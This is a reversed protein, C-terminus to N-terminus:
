HGIKGAARAAQQKSSYRDWWINFEDLLMPPAFLHGQGVDCELAMLASATAEDEVGEAITTLGLNRGLAITSQAVQRDRPSDLMAAVFSRDIKICNFPFQKVYSLSSFGIGFDDLTLM